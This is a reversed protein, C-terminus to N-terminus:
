SLYSLLLVLLLIEEMWRFFFSLPINLKHLALLINGNVRKSSALSKDNIKKRKEVNFFSVKLVCVNRLFVM